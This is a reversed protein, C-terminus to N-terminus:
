AVPGSNILLAPASRPAQYMMIKFARGGCRLASIDEFKWRKVLPMWAAM